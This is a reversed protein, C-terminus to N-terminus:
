GCSPLSPPLCQPPLCSASTPQWQGSSDRNRPPASSLRHPHQAGTRRPLASAELARRPQRAAPVRAAVQTQSIPTARRRRTASSPVQPVARLAAFLAANSDHLGTVAALKSDNTRTPMPAAAAAHAARVAPGRFTRPRNRLVRGVPPAARWSAWAGRWSRSRSRWPSPDRQGAMAQGVVPSHRDITASKLRTKLQKEVAREGSTNCGVMASRRRPRGTRRPNRSSRPLWPVELRKHTAHTRATTARGQRGHGPASCGVGVTQARARAAARGHAARSSTSCSPHAPQTL